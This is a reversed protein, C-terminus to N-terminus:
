RLLVKGVFRGHAFAADERDMTKAHANPHLGTVEFDLVADPHLTAFDSQGAHAV